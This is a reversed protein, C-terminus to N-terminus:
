PLPLSAQSVNKYGPNWDPGSERFRNSFLVFEHESGSNFMATALGRVVRAVGGHPRAAHYADLAIRM